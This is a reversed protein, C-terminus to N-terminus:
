QDTFNIYAVLFSICTIELLEVIKKFKTVYIKTVRIDWIFLAASIVMITFM